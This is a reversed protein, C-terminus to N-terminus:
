PTVPQPLPAQVSQPPVPPPPKPGAPVPLVVSHDTSSSAYPNTSQARGPYFYLQSGPMEDGWSWDSQWDEGNEDEYNWEREDQFIASRTPPRYMPAACAITGPVPRVNQRSALPDGPSNRKFIERRVATLFPSLDEPLMRSASSGKKHWKAILHGNKEIDTVEHWSKRAIEAGSMNRITNMPNNDDSFAKKFM